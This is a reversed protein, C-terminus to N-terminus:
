ARLRRVEFFGELEPETDMLLRAMRSHYHDNLKFGDEPGVRIAWDYRIAEWIPRISFHRWGRRRLALARDRCERYVLQGDPTRLWRRFAVEIHDDWLSDMGKM